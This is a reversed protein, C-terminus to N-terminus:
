EMMKGIKSGVSNAVTEVPGSASLAVDLVHPAAQVEPSKLFTESADKFDEYNRALDELSESEQCKQAKQPIELQKGKDDIM